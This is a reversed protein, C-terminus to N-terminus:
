EACGQVYPRLFKGTYSKSVKAVEEPTGTAIVEGGDRGGEPGLDIIYDATKIMDLNHEIVVVTNGQDRLQRLAVLLNEIDSFHLGTTPEDLLYLTKGTSKKSLEYALKVRQAEGGSLTTSSQGLQIYGLGITNLLKLKDCITSIESFFDIAEEVTMALVEAINKGRYLVELTGDNYRKGRCTECEVYIDPMFSMQLKQFGEGRCDECRGGKVNFSFRAPKYRRIKAERTESFLKRILGFIDTYTAANSRPTRGIPKQDIAIIRDIKESGKLSRFKGVAHDTKWIRNHLEPYLTDYIISSKGSGSVGTVCTFLGLPISISANKLNHEKCGKLEIKESKKFSLRTKPVEIEKKGYLYDLTLSKSKKKLQAPTGSAILEGGHKGAGPGLDILYDSHKMTEEDHEVAIITNKLDRLRKLTHILKMNDRAHLGISPEDLIYLVGTLGVGIQAALRIRQLEGGALTTVNRDLSLYGLGVDLLFRLRQRIEKLIPETVKKHEASFLLQDFFPVADEISLATVQIINQKEICVELSEPKLRKGKCVPCVEEKLFKKIKKRVKESNTERYLRQLEEFLGTVEDDGWLFAERAEEPWEGIALYGDFNYKGALDSVLDEIFYRNFSFFIGENLAGRLPSKTENHIIEHKKLSSTKGLGRCRGCAGYPSNFSFMNPTLGQTGLTPSSTRAVSYFHHADKKKKPFVVSVAGDSMEAADQVAEKLRQEQKGSVKLHDTLIEVDHRHTKKLKTETNFEILEGDILAVSYGKKFATQFIKQFEGKRGRVMVAFIKIEEGDHDKVWDKCLDDPDKQEFVTVTEQGAVKGVKAYLLRLYDYIETTTAVTSRPNHSMTRQEIAISPSLGSIHDIEPKKMKSLFQKAYSSLSELYRRQGEAYITDFALSSKGSGSLGTMVVLKNRPIDLNIGKLNHERAGRIRIFQDSV